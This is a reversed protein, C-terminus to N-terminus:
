TRRVFIKSTHLLISFLVGGLFAAIAFLQGGATIGVYLCGIFYSADILLTYRRIVWGPLQIVLIWGGFALGAATLLIEGM